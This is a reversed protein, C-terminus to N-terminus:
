NMQPDPSPRALREDDEALVAHQTKPKLEALEYLCNIDSAVLKHLQQLETTQEPSSDSPADYGSASPGPGSLEELIETLDSKIAVLLKLILKAAKRGSFTDGLMSEPSAQGTRHAGVNSAWKELRDLEATWSVSPVDKECRYDPREVQVKLQNFSKLCADLTTSISASM